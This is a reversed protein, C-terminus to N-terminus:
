FHAANDDSSSSSSSSSPNSFLTNLASFVPSGPNNTSDVNSGSTGANDEDDNVSVIGNASDCPNKSEESPLQFRCIPCSSHLELWPLICHSHFKHQCPMEKAETGMEFDELCVSCGLAEQINVTPLAAVAEKKAPPTGSCNLDSEALRQLLRDLGPGLLYDGLSVGSSTNTSGEQNDDPEFTGELIIAENNSNILLLSETRERRRERERERDIDRDSDTDDLGRLDDRLTQVLRVLSSDRRRRRILDEFEHDSDDDDDDEDDDDDDEMIERQLRPQQLSGGMMGLLLPAWLSLGDSRLNTAPEFGASSMEEVFGSDCTPCKMDPEVPEIVEECHHCWYRDGHGQEM